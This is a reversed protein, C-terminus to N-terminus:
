VGERPVCMRLVVWYGIALWVGALGLLVAGQPTNLLPAEFAPYARRMFAFLVPPVVVLVNAQWRGAATAARIAAEAERRERLTRHLGALSGALEAGAGQNLRLGAVLLRVEATPMRERWLWLAESLGVRQADEVVRRIEPGLLGETARAAELLAEYPVMGAGVAGALAATLREMEAALNALHRERQRRIWTLPAVMVTLGAAPWAWVPGLAVRGALWGGLVAIAAVGLLPGPEVPVRYRRLTEGMRATAAPWLGRVDHGFARRRGFLALVVAAVAGGTGIAVWAM